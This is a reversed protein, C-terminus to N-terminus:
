MRELRSSINCLLVARALLFKWADQPNQERLRTVDEPIHASGLGTGNHRLM